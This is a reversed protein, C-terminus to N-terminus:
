RRRQLKSVQEELALLREEVSSQQFSDMLRELIEQHLSRNNAEAAEQLARRLEPPLRLNFAPNSM